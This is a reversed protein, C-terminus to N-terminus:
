LVKRIFSNIKVVSPALAPLSPCLLHTLPLRLGEREVCVWWFFQRSMRKPNAKITSSEVFEVDVVDSAPPDRSSDMLALHLLFDEEETEEETEEEEKEEEQTPMEANM